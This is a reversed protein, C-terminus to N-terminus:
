FAGTSHVAALIGAFLLAFGLPKTVPDGIGPLKELAMLVMAGGMWILNMAGGVFALLMLAWCCGVCVAGQALGMRLAGSPGARWHSMFYVLPARCRSLCAAKLASFQYLGALFLLAATLWASVSIAHPSLLAAVALAYQLAAAVVAYGLWVLLYGGALAAFGANAGDRGETLGRYATLVPLATPAMMAATMLAWMLLLSAYPEGAPSASCVASWFGADFGPSLAGLVPGAPHEVALLFLGAWALLSLTFFGAWAWDILSLRRM